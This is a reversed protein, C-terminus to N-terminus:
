GAPQLVALAAGQPDIITCFRGVDPVQMTPMPVMAGLRKAKDVTADANEVAVYALWFPRPVGPPLKMLGGANKEMGEDDKVGTRKLITYRGFGPMEMHEAGWGFLAGYFKVAADPDSTLLEDWCFTYPAPRANSEPQGASKPHHFPSFVAGQADAAVAFSGVNPIDTRPVLVKGGLKGVQAAAAEVDDVTVYGIWHPPVGKMTEDIAVIGGIGEKGAYIHEYGEQGREFRWGFLEGYFRKAGAVDAAMLDHWVFKSKVGM